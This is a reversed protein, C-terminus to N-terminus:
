MGHATCQVLTMLNISASAALIIFDQMLSYAYLEYERRWVVEDRGFFAVFLPYPCLTKSSRKGGRSQKASHACGLSVAARVADLGEGNQKAFGPPFGLLLVSQGYGSKRGGEKISM